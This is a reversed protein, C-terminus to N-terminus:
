RTSHCWVVQDPNHADTCWSDLSVIQGSSVSTCLYVVLLHELLADARRFSQDAEARLDEVLYPTIFPARWPMWWM